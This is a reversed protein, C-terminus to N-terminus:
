NILGLTRELARVQDPYHVRGYEPRQKLVIEMLEWHQPTDKWPLAIYLPLGWRRLQDLNSYVRKQYLYRDEWAWNSPAFGTGPDIICRHRMGFRDADALRAEFFEVLSDVPDANVHHMERPNPGSLFPVVIPLDFEAAVEWMEDSQMGDAANLVTAGAEIARRAVQPRWTDVSLPVGLAALAPVIPALRQWETEWGVVTAADTSGQGGLDLGDAGQGLLLRARAVAQEAGSVISDANLSDPSANIVAFLEVGLSTIPRSRM